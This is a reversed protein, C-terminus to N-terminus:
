LELQLVSLPSIGFSSFLKESTIVEDIKGVEMCKGEHLLIAEDCFKESHRLDHNAILVTKGQSSLKRTLTWIENQHRIDLHAAPEDLLIVPAETALARAIYIRQREGQSLHQLPRKIFPLGDVADLAQAVIEQSPKRGHAYRAMAVFEEVSYEFCTNPNQPVLTIQRSIALRTLQSLDQGLHIVAGHTPKLLGCLLKLLTTKGAGNPGLIAYLRGPHFILQIDKLIHHPGISYSLNDAKLM